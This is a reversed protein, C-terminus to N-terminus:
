ELAVEAVTNIVHADRQRNDNRTQRKKKYLQQFVSRM